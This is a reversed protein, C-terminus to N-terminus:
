RCLAVESHLKERLIRSPLVPPLRLAMGEKRADLKTPHWDTYAGHTHSIVGTADFQTLRVRIRYTRRFFGRHELAARVQVREHQGLRLTM